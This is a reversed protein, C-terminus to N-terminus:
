KIVQIWGKFEHKRGQADTGVLVYFYTGAVQGPANWDNNYDKRQFVHDGYRNFIVIENSVFKGLGKIEFTDNKGDGDPTIVNPIFFPNVRNVDTDINDIPNTENGDSVITVQNTITQAVEGNLPSAKVRLTITVVANAPLLPITWTVRSGQVATILEVNPNTSVFSTSVYTVGNPLDDTIVVNEADTGGNNSLTITYDFEDGEFVEINNSTKQVSLDVENELLRFIVFADDRNTPNLTERLVYKLRYERPENIGPILLSLEGNENINLGIIGDLETFEFDVDNPDPRQGELLDNDLINGIVGSFNIPFAGYDDDNAIIQKSSGGVTVSDEDTVDNGNPDKANVLVNNVVSGRELDELTISYTTEFTRQEGPALADIEVNLGTLPDVVTIATLTVTGTNSVTITYTLVDGIETYTSNNAVKEVNVQASPTVVVTVQDEGKTDTDNPDTGSVTAVNVISGADMDSQTVTYTVTVTASEGPALTGVNQNVSVKNDVITVNEITVNGNNTVTLTYVIEQGAASVTSRNATKSMSLSANQVVTVTVGDEADTDSGNPDTGSVTAVNVISGADMDSQTVTYTVTVTASEGPALTGVNQNVSVKNDVITVNEITVNGNNTVTLTYVIEQGAASVTSRNATKNMSLSANQVVTVTVGDEADTDSGNPDTGSVTAVNVISGADMDSQTVTYTVTVTASEGPALTGVNQNVSVKNDVITVNEITVNGNNTVTLTYVIEQGAASVTSRNATKSMSLSANQVVPITVSDETSTNNGSPDQGVASAINEIYGRDMDEQTVQYPIDISISEGPALGGVNSSYSVKPDSKVINGITVNGTNTVTITYVIIDGAGNVSNVNASKSLSLSPLREFNQTDSDTDTINGNYKGTVTAINTFTGEDIDAQTLIYVATFTNEDIAGPALFPIEIGNVDVLPDEVVVDNLTVNGDNTITFTYTIQDGADARGNGNLDVFQGNKILTIKPSAAIPTITEEDTAVLECGLVCLGTATAVNTIPTGNDIDQQTVAYTAIFTVTQGPNVGNVPDSTTLDSLVGTGPHVDTVNINNATINGTNTVVYTYTIVDGAEVNTTKDATKQLSIRSVTVFTQVDEGTKEIVNGEYDAKVTAINKFTTANIDAQTLTYVATFTSADSAGPALSTIPDGSVEVLPDEVIINTLTVNGNNTITFTYTIQEGVDPIGNGNADVFTGKKEIEISAFAAEPTITASDTASVSQGNVGVATATALNTIATAQDIDQQTVIYTATFTVSQGPIVNNVADSTVLESLSGTGPHEDTVNVSNITINGTNTVVYTYTILDGVQINSTKDATKEISISPNQEATITESDSDTVASGTPPTGSATAT